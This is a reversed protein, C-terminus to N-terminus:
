AADLLSPRKKEIWGTAEVYAFALQLCSLEAHNRGVIQVGMPLGKDNFGVPVNLAPCGSMTVPIVVEMWRHYTDMAKGSIKKPWHLSADFPFVQASPLVFYEYKDMFRLVAQYWLTRVALADALEFMTLKLGSEVEWQAEPKMLARKAPDNYLARLPDGAQWARLKLWNQWVQEVPFDPRAEEVACGLSEFIKLANKCLDLVGPELPLYGGFDGLWAIRTVKFDRQLRGTYQAPDQRISLPVRPDYGAQVSLLMALDPVTRAMPGPVGLAATFVDRRPSPVRGYSPRFGLVNNFAAPNRLSGAHDSGDAVPLMRLALAVAAGGSSGGATKSQDYANFTTGFVNNYTQSGLGFEPTNTKGIIISGARKMRDVFLADAQPVDDKFLPSGRTTLIGKTAALDKIAQPFGHMWGMYDGRALQEDREKAQKLLGERDQLSVIANVRPNLREIHDLYANMVEVCSVQKSKISRALSVGDMMVIDSPTTRAIAPGMWAVENVAVVTALGSTLGLFSRRDVRRERTRAANAATKPFQNTQSM